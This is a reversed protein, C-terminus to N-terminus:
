PTSSLDVAGAGALSGIRQDAGLVLTAGGAVAVAAPGVLREAAALTLSGGDV